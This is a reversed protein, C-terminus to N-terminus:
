IQFRHRLLTTHLGSVQSLTFRNYVYMLTSNLYSDAMVSFDMAM